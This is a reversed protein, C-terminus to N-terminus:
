LMMDILQEDVTSGSDLRVGSCGGPNANGKRSSRAIPPMQSKIAKDFNKNLKPGCQTQKLDVIYARIYM